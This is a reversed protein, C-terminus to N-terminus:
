ETHKSTNWFWSAIVMYRVARTRKVSATISDADVCDRTVSRLVEFSVRHERFGLFYKEGLALGDAATKSGGFPFPHLIVDASALFTRFEKGASMRPLM